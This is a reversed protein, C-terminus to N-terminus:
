TPPPSATAACTVAATPSGSPSRTSPPSCSRPTTPRPSRQARPAGLARRGPLAREDRASGVGPRGPQQLAADARPRPLMHKYILAGADPGLGADLWRCCSSRPMAPSCGCSPRCTRTPTASSGSRSPSSARRGHGPRPGHHRRRRAARRVPARGPRAAGRRLRARRARAGLPGERLLPQDPDHRPAERADDGDRLRDAGRPRRGSRHSSSSAPMARDERARTRQVDSVLSGAVEPLGRCAPEHDAGLRARQM